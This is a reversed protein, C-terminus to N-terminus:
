CEDRKGLSALAAFPGEIAEAPATDEIAADPQRPFEPLALSLEQAVAEGIDIADGTLPELAPEDESLVMEREEAGAPGYVLSFRRSLAGRVPDLTVVCCQEFEAEFAAELLVTGCSQRRLEVDAVFRDLSMLDFRHALKEREQRNAEIQQRFPASGLRALPVLRSFEPVTDSTV